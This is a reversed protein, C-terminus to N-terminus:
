KKYVMLLNIGQRQIDFINKYGHPVPISKAYFYYTVVLDAKNYDDAYFLHTDEPCYLNVYRNIFPGSYVVNDPGNKKCLWKAAESFSLTDPETVFRTYNKQLGGSLLNFYSIEYPHLTFNQYGLYIFNAILIVQLIKILLKSNEVAQYAYQMGLTAMMILPPVFILLHRISYTVSNNYLILLLPVFFWMFIIIQPFNKLKNVINNEKNNIFRYSFILISIVALILILDPIKRVGYFLNMYAKANALKIVSSNYFLSGGNDFNTMFHIRSILVNIPDSWTLPDFGIIICFLLTTSLFSLIAISFLSRKLNNFELNVIFIVYLTLCLYSLASLRVMCALALYIIHLALNLKKHEQFYKVLCYISIMTLAILPIEKSTVASFGLLPPCLLLFLTGIAVLKDLVFM